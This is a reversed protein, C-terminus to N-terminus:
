EGSTLAKIQKDSMGAFSEPVGVIPGPGQNMLPVNRGKREAGENLPGASGLYSAVALPFNLMSMAFPAAATVAKKGVDGYDSLLDSGLVGMSKLYKRNEVEDPTLPPKAQVMKRDTGSTDIQKIDPVSRGIGFGGPKSARINYGDKELKKFTDMMRQEFKDMRKKYEPTKSEAKIENLIFRDRGSVPYMKDYNQMKNIMKNADMIAQMRPTYPPHIKPSHQYRYGPINAGGRPGIVGQKMGYNMLTRLMGLPLLNVGDDAKEGEQYYKVKSGGYNYLPGGPVKTGGKAFLAAAMLLPATIPNAAAAATTAAAKPAFAKMGADMGMNLAGLKAAMRLQDMESKQKQQIRPSESKKINVPKPGEAIKPAPVPMTPVVSASNQLQAMLMAKQQPSMSNINM